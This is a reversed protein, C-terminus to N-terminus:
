RRPKKRLKSFFLEAYEVAALKNREAIEADKKVQFEKSEVESKLHLTKFFGKFIQNCISCKGHFIQDNKTIAGSISKISTIKGCKKCFLRTTWLGPTSSTRQQNNSSKKQSKTALLNNLADEFYKKNADRNRIAIAEEQERKLDAKILAGEEILEYTDGWLFFNCELCNGFFEYNENDIPKSHGYFDTLQSCKPCFYRLEWVRARKRGEYKEQYPKTSIEGSKKTHILGNLYYALLDNLCLAVYFRDMFSYVKYVMHKNKCRDCKAEFINARNLWPKVQYKGGPRNDLYDKIIESM